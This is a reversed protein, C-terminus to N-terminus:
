LGKNPRLRKKLKTITYVTPLVGQVPSWGPALGKGVCLVVCVYFLRLCVDMGQTSNSGWSGLKGALSLLEHRLDCPWQLPGTTTIPFLNYIYIYIYIHSRSVFLVIGYPFDPPFRGSPLGLRLHSPSILISRLFFPHHPISYPSSDCPLSWRLASTFVIIFNRTGYFINSFEQTALLSAAEWPSLYMSNILQKESFRTQCVIKVQSCYYKYCASWYFVLKGKANM